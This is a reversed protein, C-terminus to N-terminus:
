GLDTRASPKDVSLVEAAIQRVLESRRARVPSGDPFMDDLTRDIMSWVFASDCGSLIMAKATYYLVRQVRALEAVLKPWRKVEAGQSPVPGVHDAIAMTVILSAAVDPDRDVGTLYKATCRPCILEDVPRHSGVIVSNADYRTQCMLSVVAGPETPSTTDRIHWQTEDESRLFRPRETEQLYQQYNQSM